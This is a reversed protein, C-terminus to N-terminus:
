LGTVGSTVPKSPVVEANIASPNGDRAGSAISTLISVVAGGLGIGALNAWDAQFANLAVDGVFYVSLISQAAAKAAREGVAKWFALTYM